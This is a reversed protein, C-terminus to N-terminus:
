CILLWLAAISVAVFPVIVQSSSNESSFVSCLFLYYIHMDCIIDVSYRYRVFLLILLCIYLQGSIRTMSCSQIYSTFQLLTHQRVHKSVTSQVDPFIDLKFFILHHFSLMTIQRFYICIIQMNDLHHWHWWIM